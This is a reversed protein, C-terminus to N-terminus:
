LYMEKTKETISEFFVRNKIERLDEFRDWVGTDDPKFEELAFADIDFILPAHSTHDGPEVTQTIYVQGKPDDFPINVRFFFGALLQPLKPAVEPCTLIWERFDDFPLALEIRNIYRVAIRTIAVPSVTDLYTQWLSRAHERLDAWDRYPKLRSFTFGDLRAQVVKTGDASTFLYGDPGESDTEVVPPETKSLTFHSHWKRRERCQPYADKVEDRFRSLTALNADDPLRVRIDILAETIPAKRLHPWNPM